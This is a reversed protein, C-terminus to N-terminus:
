CRRRALGGLGALGILMFGLSHSLSVPTALVSNFTIGSVSVAQVPGAAAFPGLTALASLESIEGAEFGYPLVLDALGGDRAFYLDVTSGSRGAEALFSVFAHEFSHFGAQFEWHKPGSLLGDGTLFDVEPFIGGFGEDVFSEFWFANAADVAERYRADEIALSGLYQSLEAHEWWIATGTPEGNEDYNTYWTDAEENQAVGLLRKASTQAFRSLGPDDTLKGIQDIFWVAKASLGLSAGNLTGAPDESNQKLIGTVPDSFNDIIYRATRAASQVLDAREAVPGQQALMVQYANLQDLHDVLRPSVEASTSSRRYGGTEGVAFQKQIEKSVGVIRTGLEADGTLYYLLTPGILGYAQRVGNYPQSNAPTVRGDSDFIRENFLNTDTNLFEDFLRDSGAQALDLYTTNGTLHFAIGYSYTQRSQAVVSRFTQGSRNVSIGGCATGAVPLSGDACRWGPFRGEPDGVAEPSTWFPLLDDNLHTLWRTPDPQDAAAPEAVSVALFVLTACTVSWSKCQPM